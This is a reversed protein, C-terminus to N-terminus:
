QSPLHRSHTSDTASLETTKGSFVGNIMTHSDFCRGLLLMIVELPHDLITFMILLMCLSSMQTVM